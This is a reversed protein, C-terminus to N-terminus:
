KQHARLVRVNEYYSNLFGPCNEYLVFDLRWKRLGFFCKEGEKIMIRRRFYIKWCNILVVVNVIDKKEVM